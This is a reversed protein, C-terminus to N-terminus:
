AGYYTRLNSLINRRLIYNKSRELAPRTVVDVDRGVIQALENELDVMDFITWPADDSFKVMVDVDSDPRFDETLVSGFLSFEVIKWKQCFAAIKEKDIPIRPEM